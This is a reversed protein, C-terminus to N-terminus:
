LFSFCDLFPFYSDQQSKKGVRDSSCSNTAVFRLTTRFTIQPNLNIRDCLLFSYIISNQCTLILILIQFQKPM